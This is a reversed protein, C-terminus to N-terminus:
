RRATTEVAKQICISAGCHGFRRRQTQAYKCVICWRSPVNNILTVLQVRPQSVSAPTELQHVNTHRFVLSQMSEDNCKLSHCNHMQHTLAELYASHSHISNYRNDQWGSQSYHLSVLMRKVIFRSQSLREPSVPNTYVHNGPAPALCNFRKLYTHSDM